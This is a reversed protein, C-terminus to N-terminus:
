IFAALFSMGNAELAKGVAWGFAARGFKQGAKAAAKQIHKDMSLAISADFYNHRKLIDLIEKVDIIEDDYHIVVSGTITNVTTQDIGDLNELLAQVKQGKSTQRRITPVKVRLRGPVSHIYPDMKDFRRRIKNLFREANPIIQAGSAYTIKIVCTFM